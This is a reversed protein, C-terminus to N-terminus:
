SANWKDGLEDDWMSVEIGEKHFGYGFMMNDYMRNNFMGDIEKEVYSAFKPNVSFKTDYYSPMSRLEPIQSKTYSGDRHIDPFMWSYDEHVSAFKNKGSKLYKILANSAYSVMERDDPLFVMVDEPNTSTAQPGRGYYLFEYNIEAILERLVYYISDLYGKRFPELAQSNNAIIPNKKFVYNIISKFRTYHQDAFETPTQNKVQSMASIINNVIIDILSKGMGVKGQGPPRFFIHFFTDKNQFVPHHSPDLHTGQSKPDGLSFDDSASVIHRLYAGMEPMFSELLGIASNFDTKDELSKNIDMNIYKLDSKTFTLNVLLEDYTLGFALPLAKQKILDFIEPDNQKMGEYEQKAAMALKAPFSRDIQPVNDPIGSSDIGENGRQKAFQDRTMAVGDTGVYITEMLLNRIYQRIKSETIKM